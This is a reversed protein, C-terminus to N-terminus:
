QVLPTTGLPSLSAAGRCCQVSHLTYHDHPHVIGSSARVDCIECYFLLSEVSEMAAMVTPTVTSSAVGKRCVHALVEFMADAAAARNSWSIPLVLFVTGPSPVLSRWKESESTRVQQQQQLYSTYRNGRGRWLHALM